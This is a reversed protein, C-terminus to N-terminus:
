FVRIDLVVCSIMDIDLIENGIKRMSLKVRLFFFKCKVYIEQM